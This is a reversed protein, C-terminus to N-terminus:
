VVSKRDVLAMVEPPELSVVDATPMLRIPMNGRRVLHVSITDKDIEPEAQAGLHQITVTGMGFVFLVVWKRKM